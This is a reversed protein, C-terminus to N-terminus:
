KKRAAKKAGQKKISEAASEKKVTEVVPPSTAAEKLSKDESVESVPVAPPIHAPRVQPETAGPPYYDAVEKKGMRIEKPEVKAYNITLPM